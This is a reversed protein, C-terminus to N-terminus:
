GERLSVTSKHHLMPFPLDLHLIQITPTNSSPCLDRHYAEGFDMIKPVLQKTIIINTPKLDLHVINRSALFRMGLVINFLLFLKTRLSMTASHLRAFHDLPEGSVYEMLLCNSLEAQTRVDYYKPIFHCCSGHM